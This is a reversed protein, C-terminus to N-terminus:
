VFAFCKRQHFTNYQIIHLIPRHDNQDQKPTFRDVKSSWLSFFIIKTGLSRSRQGKSRLNAKGTWRQTKM